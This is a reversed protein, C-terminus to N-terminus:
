IMWLNYAHNPALVPGQQSCTSTSVCEICSSESIEFWLTTHHIPSMEAASCANKITCIQGNHRFSWLPRFNFRNRLDAYPAFSPIVFSKGLVLKIENPASHVSSCTHPSRFMKKCSFCINVFSGIVPFRTGPPWHNWSEYMLECESQSISCTSANM